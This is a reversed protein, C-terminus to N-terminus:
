VILEELLVQHYIDVECWVDSQASPVCPIIDARPFSGNWHFLPCILPYHLTVVVIALLPHM